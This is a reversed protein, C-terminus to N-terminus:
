PQEVCYIFLQFFACGYDGIAFFADGDTDTSVGRSGSDGGSQWGNCTGGTAFTVNDGIGTWVQDVTDPDVNATAGIAHQLPTFEADFIAGPTTTGIVTDDHSQYYTTNPQLVWDLPTTADRVVGDVLLAKYAGQDPKNADHNCYDDARAVGSAGTLNPDDVFDSLHGRSTVFIKLGHSVPGAGVELTSSCAAAVLLFPLCALARSM